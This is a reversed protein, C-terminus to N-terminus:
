WKPYDNESWFCRWGPSLLCVDLMMRFDRRWFTPKLHDVEVLWGLDGGQRVIVSNRIINCWTGASGLDAHIWPPSATPFGFNNSSHIIKKKFHPYFHSVQNIVMKKPTKSLHFNLNQNWSNNGHHEDEHKITSAGKNTLCSLHYSSLLHLLSTHSHPCSAKKIHKTWPKSKILLQQQCM